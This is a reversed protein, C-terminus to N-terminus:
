DCRLSAFSSPSFGGPSRQCLWLHSLRWFYQGARDSALCAMVLFPSAMPGNAIGSMMLRIELFSISDRTWVCTARKANKQRWLWAKYAHERCTYYCHSKILQKILLQTFCVLPLSQWTKQQSETATSHVVAQSCLSIWTRRCFSSCMLLNKGADNAISMGRPPPAM